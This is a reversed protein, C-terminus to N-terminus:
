RYKDVNRYIIIEYGVLIVCGIGYCIIDKWDFTGGILIVFFRNNSLGMVETFHFFQLVEVLVAFLFVYLPFLSCGVPIWIRIFTYVVIVVLIDGVYPRIFNDHVFLAIMVEIILLIITVLFYLIRKKRHFKNYDTM